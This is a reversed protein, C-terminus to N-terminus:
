LLSASDVGHFEKPPAVASAISDAVCAFISSSSQAVRAGGATRAVPPPGTATATASTTTTTTTTNTTTTTTATNAGTIWDMWSSGSGTDAAAAAAKKQRLREQRQEEKQYEEAQLREALKADEDVQASKFDLTAPSSSNTPSPNDYSSAIQAVAASSRQDFALAAASQESTGLQPMMMAAEAEAAKKKKKESELQDMIRRQDALLTAREQPDLAALVEPDIMMGDILDLSDEGTEVLTTTATTTTATAISPPAATSPNSSPTTVLLDAFLDPQESSM